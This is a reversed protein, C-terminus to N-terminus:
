LDDPLLRFADHRTLPRLMRFHRRDLTAIVDTRFERALVVSMADALGVAPCDSLLAHAALLHPGVPPVEWRGAATRSAIYSLVANSVPSGQKTALIYDLETLVCPSVVLHGARALGEWTAQHHKDSQNFFALLASTDAIVVPPDTM